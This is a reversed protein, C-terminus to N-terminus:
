DWGYRYGVREGQKGDRNARWIQEGEEGGEGEDGLKELKWIEVREKVRELCEEGARWAEGRHAASVAVIVSEEGVPVRGLRHVISVAVLAHKEHVLTAIDLMSQLALPGYASYTLDLVPRAAFTNRTTGTFTVIAGATASKVTNHTTTLCLPSHTLTVTIAGNLATRTQPDTPSIPKSPDM